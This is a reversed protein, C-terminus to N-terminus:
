NFSKEFAFFMSPWQIHAPSFLLFFHFKLSRQLGPFFSWYFEHNLLTYFVARLTESICDKFLLKAHLISEAPSSVIASNNKSRITAKPRIAILLVFGKAESSQCFRLSYSRKRRSRPFHCVPQKQDTGYCSVNISIRQLAKVSDTREGCLRLSRLIPM